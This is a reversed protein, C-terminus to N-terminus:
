YWCVHSLSAYGWSMMDQNSLATWSFSTDAEGLAAANSSSALTMITAPLHRAALRERCDSIEEALCGGGCEGAREEKEGFERILM